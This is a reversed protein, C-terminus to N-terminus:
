LVQCLVELSGLDSDATEGLVEAACEVGSGPCPRKKWECVAARGEGHTRRTTDPSLGSHRQFLCGFLMGDHASDTVDSAALSLFEEAARLALESQELAALHRGQSVYGRAM